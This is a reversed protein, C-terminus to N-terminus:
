KDNDKFQLAAIDGILSEGKFARSKEIAQRMAELYIEYVELLERLQEKTPMPIITSNEDAQQWLAALEDATM